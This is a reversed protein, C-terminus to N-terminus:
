AFCCNQFGFFDHSQNFPAKSNPANEKLSRSVIKGQVGRTSTNWHRKTWCRTNVFCWWRNWDAEVTRCYNSMNWDTQFIRLTHKLINWHVFHVGSHKETEKRRGSSFFYYTRGLKDKDQLTVNGRGSTDAANFLKRVDEPSFTGKLSPLMGCSPQLLFSRAAFTWWVNHSTKIRNFDIWPIRLCSECRLSTFVRCTRVFVFLGFTRREFGEFFITNQQYWSFDRLPRLLRSWKQLHQTIRLTPMELYEQLMM